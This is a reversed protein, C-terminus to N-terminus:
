QLDDWHRDLLVDDDFGGPDPPLDLGDLLGDLNEEEV